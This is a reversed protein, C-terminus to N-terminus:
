FCIRYWLWKKCSNFPILECYDLGENMVCDKLIDKLNKLIKQSSIKRQKKLTKITIFLDYRSTLDNFRFSHLSKVAHPIDLVQFRIIQFFPYTGKLDNLKGQGRITNNM